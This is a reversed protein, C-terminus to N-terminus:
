EATEQARLFRTGAKARLFRALYALNRSPMRLNSCATSCLSRSCLAIPVRALLQCSRGFHSEIHPAFSLYVLSLRPHQSRTKVLEILAICASHLQESTRYLSAIRLKLKKENNVKREQLFIKHVNCHLM